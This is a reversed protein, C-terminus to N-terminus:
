SKLTKILEWNRLFHTNDRRDVVRCLLYPRGNKSVYPKLWAVKGYGGYPMTADRSIVKVQCGLTINRKEKYKEYRVLALLEEEEYTM